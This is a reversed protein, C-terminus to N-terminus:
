RWEDNEIGYLLRYSIIFANTNIKFLSFFVM